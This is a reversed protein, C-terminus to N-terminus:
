AFFDIQRSKLFSRHMDIRRKSIYKKVKQEITKKNKNQYRGNDHANNVYHNDDCMLM